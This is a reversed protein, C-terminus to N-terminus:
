SQESTKLIHMCNPWCLKYCALLPYNSSCVVHKNTYVIVIGHVFNFHKLCMCIVDPTNSNMWGKRVHERWRIIHEYLKPVPFLTPHTCLYKLPMGVIYHLNSEIWFVGISKGTCRKIAGYLYTIPMKMKIKTFTLINIRSM